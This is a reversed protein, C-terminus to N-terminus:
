GTDRVFHTYGPVLDLISNKKTIQEKQSPNKDQKIKCLSKRHSKSQGPVGERHLRPQGGVGSGADRVGANSNCAQVM